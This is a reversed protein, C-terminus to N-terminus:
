GQTYREFLRQLVTTHDGAYDVQVSVPVGPAILLYTVVKQGGEAREVVPLWEVRGLRQAADAVNMLAEAYIDEIEYQRGDYQIFGM